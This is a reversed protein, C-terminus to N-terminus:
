RWSAGPCPWPESCDPSPRDRRRCSYRLSLHIVALGPTPGRIEVPASFAAPIILPHSRFIVHRWQGWRLGFGLLQLLSDRSEALDLARDDLLHPAHDDTLLFHQLLDHDRKEHAAMTQDGSQGARRLRQQDPRQRLRQPQDELADLECGVQHGRVHGTGVDDLLVLGGAM